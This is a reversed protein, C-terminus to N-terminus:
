NILLRAPRSPLLATPLPMCRGPAACACSESFSLKLVVWIGYELSRWPSGSFEGHIWFPWYAGHVFHGLAVAVTAPVLVRWDRYFSLIVLSCFVHFYAETQGGSLIILLGSHLM